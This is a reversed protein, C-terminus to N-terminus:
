DHLTLQVGSTLTLHEMVLLYVDDLASKVMMEDLRAAPRGISMIETVVGRSRRIISLYAGGSPSVGLQVAIEVALPAKSRDDDEKATLERRM